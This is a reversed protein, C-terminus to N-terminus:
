NPGFYRSLGYYAVLLVGTLVLLSFWWPLKRSGAARLEQQRTWATLFQPYSESARAARIMARWFGTAAAAYSLFWGATIVASLTSGIGVVVFINGIIAPWARPITFDFRGALWFSAAAAAAAFITPVAAQRATTRGQARASQWLEAPRERAVAYQAETIEKPAEFRFQMWWVYIYM